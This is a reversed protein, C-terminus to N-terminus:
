TASPTQKPLRKGSAAPATKRSRTGFADVHIEGKHKADHSEAEIGDIKLFYDVAAM